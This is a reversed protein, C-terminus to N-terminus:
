WRKSANKARPLETFYGRLVNMTRRLLLLLRRREATSDTAPPRPEANEM